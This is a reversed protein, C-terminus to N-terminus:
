FFFSFFLRVSRGPGNGAWNPWGLPPSKKKRVPQNEQGLKGKNEKRKERKETPGFQFAWGALFIGTRTEGRKNTGGQWKALGEGWM